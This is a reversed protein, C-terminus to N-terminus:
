NLLLKIADWPMDMETTELGAVYRDCTPHPDLM